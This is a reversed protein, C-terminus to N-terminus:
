CAPVARRMRRQVRELDIPVLDGNRRFLFDAPVNRDVVAGAAIMAREGITIGPLVVANAGVSAGDAVVTVIFGGSLLQGMDFGTKDARPWFDNALAVGPGVFVDSGIMVGPDMFASHSIITRDGVRCGDVIACSAIRCESGVISGRIVSAFQWVFTMRGISSAEVWAAPHVHASPDIHNVASRHLQPPSAQAIAM